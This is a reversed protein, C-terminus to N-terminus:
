PAVRALLGGDVRIAQGTVHRAADSALWKAVSAVEHPAGARGVPISDLAQKRWGPSRELILETDILGPEIVNATVGRAGVERAVTRLMGVLGVKAAVYNLQASNGLSAVASGIGIVRGWRAKAMVPVSRTLLRAVGVLNVDIPVAFDDVGMRVVSVDHLVMANLVLISPLRDSVNLSDFLEEVSHDSAQDLVRWDVGPIDPPDSTLYTGMVPFGSLAFAEAVARGIGKTAGTVLVNQKSM